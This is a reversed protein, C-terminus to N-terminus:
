GLRALLGHEVDPWEEALVSFIVTDRVRGTWTVRDQRLIGEQKAGLKTVAARSRANVADVRFGVRKAGCAFAHGLLLLKASPNVHTGRVEPRYYSGGIEVASNAPDRAFYASGGVVKGELLVAYPALTEDAKSQMTKTWYGDFHENAMSFPYIDWIEQDANAAARLADRHGESLPELRVDGLELVPYTLNM